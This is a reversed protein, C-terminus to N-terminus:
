CKVNPMGFISGPCLYLLIVSLAVFTRGVANAQRYGVGYKWKRNGTLPRWVYVARTKADLAEIGVEDLCKVVYCTRGDEPSIYIWM